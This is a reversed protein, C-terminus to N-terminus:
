PKSHSAVGSVIYSAPLAVFYSSFMVYRGFALGKFPIPSLKNKLLLKAM